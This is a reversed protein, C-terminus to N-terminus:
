FRVLSRATVAWGDDGSRWTNLTLAHITYPTVSASHMFRTVALWRVLVVISVPLLSAELANLAV